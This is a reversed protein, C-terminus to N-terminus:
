PHSPDARQDTYAVVYTASPDTGDLAGPAVRLEVSTSKDARGHLVELVDLLAREPVAAARLHGAVLITTDSYLLELPPPLPEARLEISGICALSAVLAAAFGARGPRAAPAHLRFM